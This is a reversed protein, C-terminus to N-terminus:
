FLVDALLLLVDVLVVVLVRAFACCLRLLCSFCVSRVFLRVGRVCWCMAVCFLCM